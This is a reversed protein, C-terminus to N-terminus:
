LKLEALREIIDEVMSHIQSVVMAPSHLEWTTNRDIDCLPEPIIEDLKGWDIPVNNTFKRRLLPCKPSWRLHEDIVDDLEDWKGLIIKCFFCQTCDYTNALYFFGTRALKQRPIYDVTWTKFTRLRAEEKHLQGKPYEM